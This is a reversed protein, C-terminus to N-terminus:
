GWRGASEETSPLQTAASGPWRGEEATAKAAAQSAAPKEAEVLLYHRVTDTLMRRWFERERGGAMAHQRKCFPTWSWATVDRLRPPGFGAATLEAAYEEMTRIRNEEPTMWEGLHGAEAFLIDAMRLRGGPRLLRCAERLFEARTRFHFAAEISIVTDFSEPRLATRAADMVAFRAGPARRRAEDIQRESLNIGIVSAEPAGDQLWHAPAGTGCGADLWREGARPRRGAVRRVLEGCAEPQEAIEAGWYGVNFYGSSAYVQQMRADLMFRDYSRAFEGATLM